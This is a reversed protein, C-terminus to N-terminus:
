RGMMMQLRLLCSLIGKGYRKQRGGPLFFAMDIVRTMTLEDAFLTARRQLEAEHALINPTDWMTLIALLYDLAEFVTTNRLTKELVEYQGATASDLADPLSFSEGKVEFTGGTWEGQPRLRDLEGLFNIRAFADQFQDDDIDGLTTADVGSFVSLVHRAYRRPTWQQGSRGDEMVQRRLSLFAIYQGLTVDNISAPLRLTITRM